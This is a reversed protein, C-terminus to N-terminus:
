LRGCLAFHRARFYMENGLTEAGEAGFQQKHELTEAHLNQKHGLTETFKQKHGAGEAGFKQEHELTEAGEAGFNQKYGLTEAGEASFKQKHGAGEAGFRQKHGLLPRLPSINQLINGTLRVRLPFDKTFYERRAQPSPLVISIRDTILKSASDSFPFDKQTARPLTWVLLRVQTTAAVVRRGLWEIIHVKTM